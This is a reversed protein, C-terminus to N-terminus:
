SFQFFPSEKQTADSLVGRNCYSELLISLESIERPAISVTLQQM